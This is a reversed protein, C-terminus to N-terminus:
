PSELAALLEAPRTARRWTPLPQGPSPRSSSTTPWRPPVVSSCSGGPACRIEISWHRGRASRRTSTTTPEPRAPVTSCFAPATSRARDSRQEVVDLAHDAQRIAADIDAITGPTVAGRGRGHPVERQRAAVRRRAACLRDGAGPRSATLADRALRDAAVDLTGAVLAVPVVAFAAVAAWRRRRVSTETTVAEPTCSVVIGAFLWWIPDIEALPFLSWSSCHTRSSASVSAPWSRTPAECWRPASRWCVFGVLACSALAALVGGGLAVDLPGSHARDPLVRDRGYTREYHRDIEESVAIGTARRGSGSSRIIVSWGVAIAWEDVRSGAGDSRDAVDGLRPASLAIAAIAVVAGAVM